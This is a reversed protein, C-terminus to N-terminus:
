IFSHEYKRLFSIDGSIQSGDFFLLGRRTYNDLVGWDNEEEVAGYLYELTKQIDAEYYLGDNLEGQELATGRGSLMVAAQTKEDMAATDTMSFLSAIGGTGYGDQKDKITFDLVLLDSGSEVPYFGNVTLDFYEHSFTQGLSGTKYASGTTVPLEVTGSSLDAYIYSAASTLGKPLEFPMRVATKSGPALYASGTFGLPMSYVVNSMKVALPGQDTEVAFLFRQQPDINM